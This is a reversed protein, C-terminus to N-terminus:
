TRPTPRETATPSRSPQTTDAPWAEGGNPSTVTLTPLPSSGAISFPADSLDEVLVPGCSTLWSLRVRYDTGDGVLADVDWRSEGTEMPVRGLFLDQQGSKLLWIAVDGKPGTTDWTIGQTSGALLVEGGNPYSLALTPVGTSSIEFPGNSFDEAPPRCGDCTVRITYAASAPYEDCITWSLSGNSSASTVRGLHDFFQGDKHLDVRYPGAVGSSTWRVVSTAGASWVEGGNPATVTVGVPLVPAAIESLPGDLAAADGYSPLVGALLLGIALAACRLLRHAPCM